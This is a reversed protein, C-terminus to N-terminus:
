AMNNLLYPRTTCAYQEAPATHNNYNNCNSNSNVTNHPVLGCGGNNTSTAAAHMLVSSSVPVHAYSGNGTNGFGNNGGNKKLNHLSNKPSLGRMPSGNMAQLTPSNSMPSMAQISGDIAQLTPSNSLVGNRPIANISSNIAQLSPSSSLLHNIPLTPLGNPRLQIGSVGNANGNGSQLVFNGVMGASVGLSMSNTGPSIIALPNMQMDMNTGPSIIAVPNMQMLSTNIGPPRMDMHPPPLSPARNINPNDAPHVSAYGSANYTTAGNVTGNQMVACSAPGSSPEGSASASASADAHVGADVAREEDSSQDHVGADVSQDPPAPPSENSDSGSKNANGNVQSKTKRM